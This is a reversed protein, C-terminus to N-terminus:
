SEPWSGDLSPTTSLAVEKASEIGVEEYWCSKATHFTTIRLLNPPGDCVNSMTLPFHTTIVENTALIHSGKRSLCTFATSLAMYNGRRPILAWPATCIISDSRESTAINRVYVRCLLAKDLRIFSCFNPWVIEFNTGCGYIGDSRKVITQWQKNVDWGRPPHAITLALALAHREGAAIRM